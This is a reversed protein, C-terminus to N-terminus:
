AWRTTDLVIIFHISVCVTVHCIMIFFSVYELTELAVNQKLANALHGVGDDGLENNTIRFLSLM